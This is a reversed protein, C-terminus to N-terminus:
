HLWQRGYAQVGSVQQRSKSGQLGRLFVAAGATLWPLLKELHLTAGFWFPKNHHM